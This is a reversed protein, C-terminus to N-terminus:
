YVSQKMIEAMKKFYRWKIVYLDVDLKCFRLYQLRMNKLRSTIEIYDRASNGFIKIMDSEINRAIEIQQKKKAKYFEVTRKNNLLFENEAITFPPLRM